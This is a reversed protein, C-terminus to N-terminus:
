PVNCVGIETRPVVALVNFLTIFETAVFLFHDQRCLPPTFQCSVVQHPPSSRSPLNILLAVHPPCAAPFTVLPFSKPFLIFRQGQRVRWIAWSLRPVPVSQMKVAGLVHSQPSGPHM